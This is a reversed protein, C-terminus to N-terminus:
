SGGGGFGYSRSAMLYIFCPAGIMSILIGIPLESNKLISRCLVDAWILTTHPKVKNYGEKMQRFLSLSAAPAGSVPITKPYATKQAQNGQAMGARIKYYPFLFFAPLCSGAPRCFSHDCKLFLLAASSPALYELTCKLTGPVLRQENQSKLFKSTGVALFRDVLEFAFRREDKIVLRLVLTCPGLGMVPGHNCSGAGMADFIM